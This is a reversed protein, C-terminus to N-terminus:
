DVDWVGEDLNVDEPAIPELVQYEVSIDEESDESEDESEGDQEAKKKDEEAQAQALYEEILDLPLGADLKMEQIATIILEKVNKETSTRLVNVLTNECIHLQMKVNGLDAHREAADALTITSTFLRTLREVDVNVLFLKVHEAFDLTIQEQEVLVDLALGVQVAQGKLQYEGALLSAIRSQALYFNEKLISGKSFNEAHILKEKDRDSLTTKYLGTITANKVLQERNITKAGTSKGGHLHCRGSGPHNTKFGKVFMCPTGDRTTAGCHKEPSFVREKYKKVPKEQNNEETM